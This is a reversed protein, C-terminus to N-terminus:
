ELESSSSRQVAGLALAAVAALSLMAYGPWGDGYLVHGTGLLAAYVSVCGLFMSLLGKPVPWPEAAA